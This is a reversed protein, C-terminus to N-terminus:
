FCIQWKFPYKKLLANLVIRKFEVTNDTNSWVVLDLEVAYTILEFSFSNDASSFKTEIIIVWTEFYSRKYNRTRYWDM